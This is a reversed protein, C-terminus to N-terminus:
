SDEQCIVFGHKGYEDGNYILYRKSNITFVAPYAQMKLDNMEPGIPVVREDSRKWNVLDKSSAHGLWYPERETGYGFYMEYVRDTEFVYPRGLRHEDKKCKVVVTGADPFSSIQQSVLHRIDYVPLSKRRGDEFTSGGGYFVHFTEGILLVSHAVRFLVEESTRDLVPVESVRNFTAGDDESKALGGFVMFRVKSPIQYGAYFLYTSGEVKIVASPVVGNDDFRGPAGIDLSPVESIGVINSPNDLDLDVFGVRSIGGSDRLGCFVRVRDQLVLPTPQLAFSEFWSNRFFSPNFCGIKLWRRM